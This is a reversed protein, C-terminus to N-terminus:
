KLLNLCFKGQIRFSNIGNAVSPDLNVGTSTFAFISNYLRMNKQFLSAERNTGTLLDQLVQPPESFNPLKVKGNKCCSVVEGKFKKASCYPCEKDM